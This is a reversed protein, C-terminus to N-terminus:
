RKNNNEEDDYDEDDYDEDDNYYDDINESWCSYHGTM